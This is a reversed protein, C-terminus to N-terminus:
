NDWDLGFGFRNRGGEPEVGLSVVVDIPDSANITASAAPDQSIILGEAVTDSYAFTANLQDGSLLWPRVADLEDIAIAPPDNVVNPATIADDTVWVTFDLGSTAGAADTATVSFENGIEDEVDPTGDIVGTAGTLTLGSNLSGLTVSYTLQEADADSCANDLDLAAMAVTEFLLLFQHEEDCVPAANNFWVDIDDAHWGGVSADYVTTDLVSQPTADGTYSYQCTNAVTLAFAGPSTAADSMLWDNAAIDPDVADNFFDCPSDTGITLIPWFAMGTPATMQAALVSVVASYNSTGEEATCHFNYLPFVPSDVNLPVTITDAAGTAAESVHGNSGTHAEIAAAAPTAEATSLAMCHMTDTDANADYDLDCSDADCNDLTPGSDFGPSAAAASTDLETIIAGFGIGTGVDSGWTIDTGTFGSDRHVIEAGADPTAHGTDADETWGTPPTIAAPNRSSGVFGLTVNGTLAAVPFAPDPTSGSTVTPDSASQRIADLGTRTMGAIRQICIVTGGAPDVPNFTVSQSATNSVLTDSVFAYLTHGAASREYREYQTFTMGTSSTLVGPDEITASAYVHVILLDSSAPSFNASSNPTNGTDATCAVFTTTAAQALLPAFAILALILRGLYRM